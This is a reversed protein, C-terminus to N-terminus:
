YESDEYHGYINFPNEDDWDICLFNSKEDEQIRKFKSKAQKEIPYFSAYDEQTCVHYPLLREYKKGNDTGYIRFIWKVYRNDDKLTKDLFGEFAFAIHSHIANM